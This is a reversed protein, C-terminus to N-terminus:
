EVRRRAPINTPYSALSLGLPMTRLASGFIWFPESFRLRAVYSTHPHRTTYAFPDSGHQSHVLTIVHLIYHSTISYYIRYAVSQSPSVQCIFFALLSHLISLLVRHSSSHSIPIWDHAIRLNPSRHSYCCMEKRALPLSRRGNQGGGACTQAYNRTRSYM